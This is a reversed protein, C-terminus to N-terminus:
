FPAVNKGINDDTINNATNDCKFDFQFSDSVLSFNLDSVEDSERDM